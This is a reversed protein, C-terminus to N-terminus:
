KDIIVTKTRLNVTEYDWSTLSVISNAVYATAEIEKRTANVFHQLQARDQETLVKKNFLNHINYLKLTRAESGNGMSINNYKKLAQEKLETDTM